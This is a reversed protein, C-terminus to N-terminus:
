LWAQFSLQPNRGKVFASSCDVASSKLSIKSASTAWMASISPLGTPNEIDIREYPDVLNDGKENTNVSTLRWPMYENSGKTIKIDLDNVLAPTPDNAVGENQWAPNITFSTGNNIYVGFNIGAGGGAFIMDLDGDNDIDGLALSGSGVGSLNQEWNLDEVFSTGNNIWVYSKDATTCPNISTQCGISIMDLDGDNDIDGFVAGNGINSGTLNGQWQVSEILGVSSASVLNLM